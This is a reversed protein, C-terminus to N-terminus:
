PAKVETRDSPKGQSHLLRQMEMCTFLLPFLGHADDPSVPRADYKAPDTSINTGVVSGEVTGDAAIVSELARWGRLAAPQYKKPPLWGQNIGRALALTFIATGSTERFSKPDTLINRWFGSADQAGVIGDIHRRYFALIKPYDKHSKPLRGLVEMTAWAAWGNARSWYPIRQEPRNTMYGQPLLRSDPRRLYGALGLLQRAAEDYYRQKEPANAALEASFLLFPISMFMDDAWVTFQEPTRRALVGDPLRVQEEMIYRRLPAVFQEYAPRGAFSEDERLRYLLPLAPATTYDLMPRGVMQYQMAQLAHRSEVQYAFFDRHGIIFDCYRAAFEAYKEQRTAESLKQLGWMLGGIFYNYQYMPSGTAAVVVDPRPVTWTFARGDNYYLAGPTFGAEPPFTAEPGPAAFPGVTLWTARSVKPALPQLSFRIRRATDPLELLHRSQLYFLWRQGTPRASQGDSFSKVLIKNVGKKLAVRFSDTLALTNDKWVIEGYGVSFEQRGTKEYAVRDNVWLRLADNHSIEFTVTQDQPSIVTSLGYATGQPSGLTQEFDVYELFPNKPQDTLELRYAGTRLIKDAVAQGVALPTRTGVLAPNTKQAFGPACFGGLGLYLGCCVLLKM